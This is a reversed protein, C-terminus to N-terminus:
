FSWWAVIAEHSGETGDMGLTRWRPRSIHLSRGGILACFGIYHSGGPLNEHLPLTKRILLDGISELLCPAIRRNLLSALQADACCVFTLMIEARKNHNM